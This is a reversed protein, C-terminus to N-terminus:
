GPQVISYKAVCHRIDPLASALSRLVNIFREILGGSQIGGREHKVRTATPRNARVVSFQILRRAPSLVSRTIKQVSPQAQLCHQHKRLIHFTGASALEDFREASGADFIQLHNM